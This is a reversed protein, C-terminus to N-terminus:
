YDLPREFAMGKIEKTRGKAKSIDQGEQVQAM